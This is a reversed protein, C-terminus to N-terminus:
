KKNVIVTMDADKIPVYARLIAYFAKGTPVGNLGEGTPSLTITYTGDNNQTSSYSTRDYVMKENPILLRNDAGRDIFNFTYVATLIMLVYGSNQSIKNIKSM